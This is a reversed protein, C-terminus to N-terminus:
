MKQCTKFNPTKLFDLSVKAPNGVGAAAVVGGIEAGTEKVWAVTGKIATAISETETVDTEFFKTKGGGVIKVLEQALEENVVYFQSDTQIYGIALCITFFQLISANCKNARSNCFCRLWIDGFSSGVYIRKHSQM